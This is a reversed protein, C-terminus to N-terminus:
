RAMPKRKAASQRRSTFLPWNRARTTKPSSLARRCCPKAKGAWPLRSRNKRDISFSASRIIASAASGFIRPRSGSQCWAMSGSTRLIITSGSTTCFTGNPKKICIAKCRCRFAHGGVFRREDLSDLALHQRRQIRALRTDCHNTSGAIALREPPTSVRARGPRAPSVGLRSACQKTVPKHTLRTAGGHCRAACTRKLM